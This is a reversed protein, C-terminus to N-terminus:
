EPQAGAADQGPAAAAAAPEADGKEAFWQTVYYFVPATLGEPVPARAPGTALDATPGIEWVLGRQRV